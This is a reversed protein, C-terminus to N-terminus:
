RSGPTSRTRPRIARAWLGAVDRLSRPHHIALDVGEPVAALWRRKQARYRLVFYRNVRDIERQWYALGDRRARELIPDAATWTAQEALYQLLLEQNDAVNGGGGGGPHMRYEAIVAQHEAADTHRSLRLYFDLDEVFRLGPTFGGIARFADASVLVVAPPVIWSRRLLREM